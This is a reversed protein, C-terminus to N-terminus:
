LNDKARVRSGRAEANGARCTAHVTDANHGSSSRANTDDGSAAPRDRNFTDDRPETTRCTGTHQGAGSRERTCSTRCTGTDTRANTDSRSGTGAESCTTFCTHAEGAPLSAHGTCTESKVQHAAATDRGSCTCRAGLPRSQLERGRRRAHRGCLEPHVTRAVIHERM